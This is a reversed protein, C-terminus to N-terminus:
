KKSEGGDQKGLGDLRKELVKFFGRLAAESMSIRAHDERRHVTSFESRKVEGQDGEVELTITELEIDITEGYFTLQYDGDPLPGTLVTGSAHVSVFNPAKQYRREALYNQFLM